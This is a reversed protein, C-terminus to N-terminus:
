GCRSGGRGGVFGDFGGDGLGIGDDDDGPLRGVAGALCTRLRDRLVVSLRARRQAADAGDALLGAPADGDDVDGGRAVPGLAAARRGLM